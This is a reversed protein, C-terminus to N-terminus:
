YAEDDSLASPPPSYFKITGSLADGNNKILAISDEPLIGSEWLANYESENEFSKLYM